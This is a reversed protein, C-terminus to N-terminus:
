LHSLAPHVAPQQAHLESGINGMILVHDRGVRPMPRIEGNLYENKWEDARDLRLYDCPTCPRAQTPGATM